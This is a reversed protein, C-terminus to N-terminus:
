LPLEFYYLPTGGGVVSTCPTDAGNKFMATQPAPSLADITQLALGVENEGNSTVGYQGEPTHVWDGLYVAEGPKLDIAITSLCIYTVNSQKRGNVQWLAYQGPEAQMIQFGNVLNSEKFNAIRFVIPKDKEDLVFDGTDPNRKVFLLDPRDFRGVKGEFRLRAILTTQSPNLITPKNIPKPPLKKNLVLPGGYKLLSPLVQKPALKPLSGSAKLSNDQFYFLGNPTYAAAQGEPPTPSTLYNGLEKADMASLRKAFSKMSEGVIDYRIYDKSSMCNAVDINTRGGGLLGTWALSILGNGADPAVDAAAGQALQSIDTCTNLDSLVIEVSTGVKNYFWASNSGKLSKVPEAHASFNIGAILVTLGIFTYIRRQFM